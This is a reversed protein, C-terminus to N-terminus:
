DLMLSSMDSIVPAFLNGILRCIRVFVMGMPGEGESPSNNVARKRKSISYKVAYMVFEWRNRYPSSRVDEADHVVCLASDPVDCSGHGQRAGEVIM